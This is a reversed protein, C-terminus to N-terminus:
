ISNLFNIVQNITIGYQNLRGHFCKILAYVYGTLNTQHTQLCAKEVEYGQIGNGIITDFAFKVIKIANQQTGKIQKFNKIERHERNFEDQHKYVLDIKCAPNHYDIHVTRSSTRIYAVNGFCQIAKEELYDIMEQRNYDIPTCFIIDLDSHNYYTLKAESGGRAIKVITLGTNNHLFNAVKHWKSSYAQNLNKNREIKKLIKKLQKNTLTPIIIM